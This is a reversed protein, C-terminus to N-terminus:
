ASNTDILETDIADPIEMFAMQQLTYLPSGMAYEGSSTFQICGPGSPPPNDDHCWTGVLVDSPVAQTQPQSQPKATPQAQYQTENQSSVLPTDTTSPSNLAAEAGSDSYITYGQLEQSGPDTVSNAGSDGGFYSSLVLAVVIILVAISTGWLPVRPHAAIATSKGIVYTRGIYDHWGRKEKNWGVWLYGICFIPHVVAGRGVIERMFAKSLGPSQGRSDVVRLGLLMKGLTQGGNLWTFLILYIYLAVAGIMAGLGRDPERLVVTIVLAVVVWVAIDILFAAARVWFGM